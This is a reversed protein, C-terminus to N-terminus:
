RALAFDARIHVMRTSIGAEVPPPPAATQAVADRAEIGPMEYQIPGDMAEAERIALVRGVKMGAAAAYADARARAVRYANAYATRAAKEPDGVGLNPGSLVHAGAQTTAAIADGAKGINRVRVEIMNNAEFRGRNPGYDIRALTISRTQIDDRGVGLKALSAVVRNITQSNGASAEAATAGITQVGATFRAQDPRSEARGTASVQLLVEDRAVGRPDAPRGCASLGLVLLAALGIARV